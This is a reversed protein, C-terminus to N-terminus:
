LANDFKNTRISENKQSGRSFSRPVKNVLRVIILLYYFTFIKLFNNLFIDKSQYSYIITTKIIVIFTLIVQEKLM